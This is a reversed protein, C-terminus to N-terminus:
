RALYRTLGADLDAILDAPDELGISLRLLPGPFHPTTATRNGRFDVPLALSEYGGWSFGLGFHHLGDVLRAMDSRTGPTLAVAFLGTSGTFDRTFLAHDPHSPLAPHLVQTVAPHTELWKAIKLASQEHRDLRVALTRLGRLALAADDAGVSHGLRYHTRCLIPWLAPTTTVAGMLLDSHGAVYKTLSQISIDIGLALPQLRLPTAWTNDILTTIGAARATAAIARLDQVEFSLSGPSELLIARTKPGIHPALDAGQGIHPDLYRTTIGFRSLFQDAFQRSPEYANDTILLEDGTSLVSLLATSIAAVGSPYLKCGQADPELRALADELAWHTPTGRRGYYLGEDPAASAAELAALNPFLITSARAVPPNVFPSGESGRGGTIVRTHLSAEGEPRPPRRM